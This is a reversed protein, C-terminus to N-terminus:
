NLINKSKSSNGWIFVILASLKQWHYEMAHEQVAAFDFQPTYMIERRWLFLVDLQLSFTKIKM